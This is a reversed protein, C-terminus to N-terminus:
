RGCQPILSGDLTPTKSDYDQLKELTTVQSVLILTCYQRKIINKKTNIICYFAQQCIFGVATYPFSLLLTLSDSYNSVLVGKQQVHQEIPVNYQRFLFISVLVAKALIPLQGKYLHRHVPHRQFFSVKAIKTKNRNQFDSKKERTKSDSNRARKM